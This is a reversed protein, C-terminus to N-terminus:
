MILKTLWILVIYMHMPPYIEGVPTKLYGICRIKFILLYTKLNKANQQPKRGLLHNFFYINQDNNTNNKWYLTNWLATYCTCLYRRVALLSFCVRNMCFYCLLQLFLSMKWLKFAGYSKWFKLFSYFEWFM